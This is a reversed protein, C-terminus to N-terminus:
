KLIMMKRVQHNNNLKLEYFYVGSSLSYKRSDFEIKHNGSSEEENILSAVERGLTDFVKLTIFSSVSLQWSIITSPNFPNPYNQYLNFDKPAGEKEKIDTKILHNGLMIIAYGIGNKDYPNVNVAFDNEGDGNQDGVNIAKNPFSIGSELLGSLGYPNKNSIHPGGLILSFTKYGGPTFVFDDYGDGNFDGIDFSIGGFVNDSSDTADPYPPLLLSTNTDIGAPSGYHIATGSDNFGLRGVVLDKIGDGNIDDISFSNVFWGCQNYRLSVSSTYKISESDQYFTFNKSGYYIHLIYANVSDAYGASDYAFTRSSILLDDYKDGNIDGVEFYWGFYNIANKGAVEFSPSQPPVHAGMYIYIMGNDSLNTYEYSSIVIDAKGDGNFDGTEVGVKLGGLSFKDRVPYLTPLPISYTPVTDIALNTKNSGYYFLLEGNYDDRTSDYSTFHLTIMDKYGDGNYDCIALCRGKYVLDVTTDLIGKGGYYVYTDNWNGVIIDPHGDKNIDY